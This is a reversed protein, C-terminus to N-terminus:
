LFLGSNMIFDAVGDQEVSKCIYDAHEQVCSPVNAMAIAHGVHDMMEIDNYGDGFFYSDEIKIDIEQLIEDLATAKSYTRSYIEYLCHEQDKAYYFDKDNIILHNYDEENRTQVHIKLVKDKKEDIDDIHRVYNDNLMFTHAYDVLSGDDNYVYAYKKTYAVYTMNKDKVQKLIPELKKVDIPHYAIENNDFLVYAGDDLIYGNFRFDILEELLYCYPRGSAIFIYHGAEKLKKLAEKTKDTLSVHGKQCEVLTGDIDFLIVKREM